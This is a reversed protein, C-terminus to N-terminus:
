RYYLGGNLHVIQGTMYGTGACLVIAEACEESTGMRGLPINRAREAANRTMDTHILAPAV